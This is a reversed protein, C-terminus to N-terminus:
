SHSGNGTRLFELVFIVCDIQGDAAPVRRAELALTDRDGAMERM